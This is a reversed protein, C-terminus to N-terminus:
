EGNWYASDAHLERLTHRCGCKRVYGNDHVCMVRLYRGVGVLLCSWRLPLVILNVIQVFRRTRTVAILILIAIAISRRFTIVRRRRPKARLLAFSSGWGCAKRINHGEGAHTGPRCLLFHHHVNIIIIHCTSPPRIHDFHHHHHHGIQVGFRAHSVTERITWSTLM